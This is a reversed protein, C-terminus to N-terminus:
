ENLKKVAQRLTSFDPRELPENSCCRQVLSLPDEQSLPASCIDLIDECLSLTLSNSLQHVIDGPLVRNKSSITASKTLYPSPSQLLIQSQTNTTASPMPIPSPTTVNRSSQAMSYCNSCELTCILPNIRSTNSFFRHHNPSIAGTSLQSNTSNRRKGRGTESHLFDM